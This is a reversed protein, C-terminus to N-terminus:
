LTTTLIIREKSPGFRLFCIFEQHKKLMQFEADVDAADGAIVPDARDPTM